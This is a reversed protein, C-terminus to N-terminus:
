TSGRARPPSTGTARRRAASRWPGARSRRSRAAHRLGRAHEARLVGGEQQVDGREHGVRDLVRAQVLARAARQALELLERLEAPVDRAGLRDVLQERHRDLLREAQEAGLRQADVQELRAAVPQAHAGGRGARRVPGVDDRQGLQAALQLARLGAPAREGRHEGAREPSGGRHAGREDRREDGAVLHHAEEDRPQGLIPARALVRAIEGVRDRRLGREAELPQLQDLSQGLAVEDLIEEVREGLPRLVAAMAACARRRPISAAPGPRPRTPAARRRDPPSALAANRGAASAKSAAASRSM